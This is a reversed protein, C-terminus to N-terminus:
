KKKDSNWFDYRLVHTNKSKNLLREKIWGEVDSRIAKRKTDAAEKNV